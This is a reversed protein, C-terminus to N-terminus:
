GPLLNRSVLQANEARGSWADPATFYYGPLDEGQWRYSGALGWLLATSGRLLRGRAIEPLMYRSIALSVTRVDDRDTLDHFAPGPAGSADFDYSVVMLHDLLSTVFGIRDVSQHHDCDECSGSNAVMGLGWDSAMRGGVLLGFPSMWEMWLHHLVIADTHSNIGAQPPAQSSSATPMPVNATAPYAAPTSGLSLNELLGLRMGIRVEPGLHLVPDLLLGMDAGTITEGAAARAGGPAWCVRM